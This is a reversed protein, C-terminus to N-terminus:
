DGLPLDATNTQQTQYMPGLAAYRLVVPEGAPHMQSGTCTGGSRFHTRQNYTELRGHYPMRQKQNRFAWHEPARLM